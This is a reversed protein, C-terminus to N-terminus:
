AGHPNGILTNLAYDLEHAYEALLIAEGDARSLVLVLFVVLDERVAFPRFGRELCLRTIDQLIAVARDLGTSLWEDLESVSGVGTRRLLSLLRQDLVWAHDQWESPEMGAAEAIAVLDGVAESGKLYARLSRADLPLDLDGEAIAKAYREDAHDVEYWVAALANDAEICRAVAEEIARRVEPPYSSHRYYPLRWDFAIWAEQMLTRIEIVARLGGFGRWGRALSDPLSVIVKATQYGVRDDEPRPSPDENEAWAAAVSTSREDDVELEVRVLTEIRELDEPSHATVVLRAFRLDEFPDDIQLGDRAARYIRQVVGEVSDVAVFAHHYPIGEEDLRSEILEELRECFAVYTPRAEAFVNGWEEPSRPREM